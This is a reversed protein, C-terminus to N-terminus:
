GRYARLWAFTAGEGDAILRLAERTEPDQELEEALHFIPRTADADDPYRALVADLKEEDAVVASGFRAVAAALTSTALAATCPWGLERLREALLEAHGAEREAIVRLGGRLEDHECVAIWASLVEASAAEAARLDDLFRAVRARLEGHM